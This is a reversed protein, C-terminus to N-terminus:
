VAAWPVFPIAQEFPLAVHFRQGARGAVFDGTGYVIWFWAAFALALLLNGRLAAGRPLGLARDGPETQEREGNKRPSPHPSPSMPRNRQTHQVRRARTRMRM